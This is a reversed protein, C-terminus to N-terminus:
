KNGRVIPSLAAHDAKISREGYQAKLTTIIDTCKMGSEICRKVAIARATNPTPTKHKDRLAQLDQATLGDPPTDPQWNGWLIAGNKKDIRGTANALDPTTPPPAASGQRRRISILQMM